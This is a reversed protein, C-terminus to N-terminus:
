QVIDLDFINSTRVDGLSNARLTHARVDSVVMTKGMLAKLADSWNVFSRVLENATGKAYDYIGPANIARVLTSLFLRDTLTVGDPFTVTVLVFLAPRGQFDISFVRTSQMELKCGHAWIRHPLNPVRGLDEANISRADGNQFNKM